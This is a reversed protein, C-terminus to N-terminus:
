RAPSGVAVGVERTTLEGCLAERFMAYSVESVEWWADDAEAALWVSDVVLPHSTFIRYTPSGEVAFVTAGGAAPDLRVAVPTALAEPDEACVVSPFDRGWTAGEGESAAIGERTLHLLREAAEGPSLFPSAGPRRRGTSVSIAVFLAPLTAVPCLGALVRPIAVAVEDQRDAAVAQQAARYPISTRLGELREQWDARLGLVELSAADIAAADLARSRVWRRIRAGLSTLRPLLESEAAAALPTFGRAATYLRGLEAM